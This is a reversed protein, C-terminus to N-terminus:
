IDIIDDESLLLLKSKDKLRKWENSIDNQMEEINFMERDSLLRIEAIGQLGLKTWASLNLHSFFVVWNGWSTIVAEGLDLLCLSGVGTTIMRQLVPDSKKSLVVDWPQNNNYHQKIVYIARIILDNM